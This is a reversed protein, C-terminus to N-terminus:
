VSLLEALELEYNRSLIRQRKSYNSLAKQEALTKLKAKSEDDLKNIILIMKSREKDTFNPEGLLDAPVGLQKILQNVAQSVSLVENKGFLVSKQLAPTVSLTSFM